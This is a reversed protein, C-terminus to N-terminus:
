IYNLSIKLNYNGVSSCISEIDDLTTNFINKIKDEQITESLIKKCFGNKGEYKKLAIKNLDKEKDAIIYL